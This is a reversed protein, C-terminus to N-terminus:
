DGLSYKQGKKSEPHGKCLMALQTFLIWFPVIFAVQPIPRVVYNNYM